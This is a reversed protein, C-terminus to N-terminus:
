QLDIVFMVNCGYNLDKLGTLLNVFDFIGTKTVSLLRNFHSIDAVISVDNLHETVTNAQQLASAQQLVNLHIAFTSQHQSGYAIRINANFRLVSFYQRQRQALCLASRPQAVILM